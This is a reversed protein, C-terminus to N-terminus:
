QPNNNEIEKIAAPLGEQYSPYELQWDLVQKARANSVRCNMTITDYIMEGMTIKVLFGPISRPRSINMCDAMFDAFERQTCPGDDAIIFREGVPMKNLVAVYARACDDVHIRPIYNNGSGIIKYKGQKMWNYMFNLFLGGPGYIEGPLIQILPPSGRKIVNAILSDTFEGIKAMGFRQIPWSEDAVEDGRTRFSAGLTAILPCEAKEAIAIATSFYSTTQKRLKNFQEGTVKGQKIDPMAINIVADHPKIGPLFREPQLLDGVIAKVGAAELIKARERNRTLISLSHNQKLLEPV